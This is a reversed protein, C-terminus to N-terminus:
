EKVYQWSQPPRTLGVESINRVRNEAVYDIMNHIEWFDLGANVGAYKLVEEKTLCSERLIEAEYSTIPNELLSSILFGVVAVVTFEAKILGGSGSECCLVRFPNEAFGHGRCLPTSKRVEWKKEGRRIKDLYPKKITAVITIKM